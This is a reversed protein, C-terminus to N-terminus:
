RSSGTKISGAEKLSKIRAELAEVRDLLRPVATRWEAILTADFYSEKHLREDYPVAAFWGKSEPGIVLAKFSAVTQRVPSIIWPGKTAKEDLERLRALYEPTLDPM